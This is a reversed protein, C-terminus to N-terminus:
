FNQELLGLEMKAHPSDPAADSHYATAIKRREPSPTAGLVENCGRTLHNASKHSATQSGTFTYAHPQCFMICKQSIPAIMAHMPIQFCSEKNTDLWVIPASKTPTNHIRSMAHLNAAPCCRNPPVSYM